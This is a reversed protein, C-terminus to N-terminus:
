QFNVTTPFTLLRGDHNLHCFLLNPVPKASSRLFSFKRNLVYALHDIKYIAINAAGVCTIIARAM